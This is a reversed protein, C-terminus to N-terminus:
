DLRISTSGNSDGEILDKVTTDIWSQLKVGHEFTKILLFYIEKIRKEDTDTISCSNQNHRYFYGDIGRVQLNLIFSTCCEMKSIMGMYSDHFTEPNTGAAIKEIYKNKLEQIRKQAYLYKEIDVFDLIKDLVQNIFDNENESNFEIGKKMDTIRFIMFKEM